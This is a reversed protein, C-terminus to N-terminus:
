KVLASFPQTWAAPFLLSDGRGADQYVPTETITSIRARVYLDDADLTYSADMGEVTKLVVGIDDSWRGITREPSKKEADAPILIERKTRDFNKKTGFFDIRYRTQADAKVRVFLTKANRDFTIQEFDLGNSTYSEGRDIADFLSPFALKESLVMMWAKPPIRKYRHNDDTGTALLLPAGASVRFANVIDWFKEPTWGEPHKEFTLGNNNLEFQRVEPLDILTQPEVDYFRWIPHNLTFLYPEANSRFRERGDAFNAAITETTTEGAHYPFFDRVNIFNMHVDRGNKSRGTQEFGPILLFEGPKEFQQCLEDFTKLRYLKREGDKKSRISDDGFKEATQKLDAKTLRGWGAKGCEKWRSTEGEFLSKDEPPKCAGCWADFQLADSQFTNHDSTCLFNYGKERYWDIAWEPMPSGDSWQTHMHLNGRFWRKTGTEDARLLGHYPVLAASALLSTTKLFDRRNMKKM